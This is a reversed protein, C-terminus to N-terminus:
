VVGIKKGTYKGPYPLFYIHLHTPAARFRHLTFWSGCWVGEIPPFCCAAVVFIVVDCLM